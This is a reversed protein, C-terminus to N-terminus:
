RLDTSGPRRLRRPHPHVPRPDDVGARAGDGAPRPQDAGRRDRAVDRVLAGPRPLAARRVGGSGPGRGGGRQSVGSPARRRGPRAVTGVVPGARGRGGTASVVAATRLRATDLDTRWRIRASIACLLRHELPPVDPDEPRALEFRYRKPGDAENVAQDHQNTDAMGGALIARIWARNDARHDALTKGSWQRSVLVRRGTFGLTTRQHVKGTRPRPALRAQRRRTPRRRRCRSDTRAHRGCATVKVAQALSQAAIPCSPGM